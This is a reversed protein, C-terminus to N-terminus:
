ASYGHGVEDEDEGVGDGASPAGGRQGFANAELEKQVAVGGLGNEVAGIDGANGIAGGGDDDDPAVAREARHRLPEIAIM